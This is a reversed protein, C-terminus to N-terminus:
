AAKRRYMSPQEPTLARSVVVPGLVSPLRDINVAAKSSYGADIM